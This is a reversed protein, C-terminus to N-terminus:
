PATIETNVKNLTNSATGGVTKMMGVALLLILAALAVYEVLGAGKEDKHLDGFHNKIQKLM